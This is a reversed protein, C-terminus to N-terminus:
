QYYKEANEIIIYSILRNDFHSEILPKLQAFLAPNAGLIPLSIKIFDGNSNISIKYANDTLPLEHINVFSWQIRNGKNHADNLSDNLVELENVLSSAWLEKESRNKFNKFVFSIGNSTIFEAQMNNKISWYSTTSDYYDLQKDTVGAGITNRESDIAEAFYERCDYRQCFENVINSEIQKNAGTNPGSIIVPQQAILLIIKNQPSIFFDIPQGSDLLLFMNDLSDIYSQIAYRWRSIKARKKPDRPLKKYSRDLEDTYTNYMEALALYIFEYRLENDAVELHLALQILKSQTLNIENSASYTVPTSFFFLLFFLGPIILCNNNM